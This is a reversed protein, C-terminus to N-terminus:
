GGSWRGGLQRNSLSGAWRFKKVLPWQHQLLPFRALIHKSHGMLARHVEASRVYRRSAELYDKSDLCGWITEPTDLLYKVRSGLAAPSYPSLQTLQRGICKVHPSLM